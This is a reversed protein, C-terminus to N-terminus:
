KKKVTNKKIDLPGVNKVNSFTQYTLNLKIYFLVKYLAVEKPLKDSKFYIKVTKTNEYEIMKNILTKRKFREVKHILHQTDLNAKIEEDSINVDVGKIIGISYIKYDPIYAALENAKDNYRDVAENAKSFNNFVLEVKRKDSLTRIYDHEIGM